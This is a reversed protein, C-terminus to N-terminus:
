LSGQPAIPKAVRKRAALTPVVRGIFSSSDEAVDQQQPEPELAHDVPQEVPQAVPQEAPQSWKSVSGALLSLIVNWVLGAACIFPVKYRPPVFAFQVLQVPLWFLTNCGFLQGLQAKARQWTQQRTLGQILGTVTFYAPYYLGPAVTFQNVLVRELHAGGPVRLVSGDFHNVLWMFIPQQLLGRYVSEVAVFGVARRRNYPQGRSRSQALADGVLALSAATAVRVEIPHATLAADYMALLPPARPLVLAHSLLATSLLAAM